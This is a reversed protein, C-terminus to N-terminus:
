IELAPVTETLETDLSPVPGTLMPKLELGVDPKDPMADFTADPVNGALGSSLELGTLPVKLASDRVTLTTDRPLVRGRVCCEINKLLTGTM